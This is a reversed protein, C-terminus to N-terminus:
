QIVLGCECAFIQGGISNSYPIIKFSNYTPFKSKYKEKRKLFPLLETAFKAHMYVETCVKSLNDKLSNKWTVLANLM